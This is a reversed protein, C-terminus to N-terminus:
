RQIGKLLCATSMPVSEDFQNEVFGIASLTVSYKGHETQPM